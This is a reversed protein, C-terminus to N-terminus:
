TSDSPSATSFDPALSTPIQPSHNSFDTTFSLDDIIFNTSNPLIIDSLFRSASPQSSSINTFPFIHEYFIVHRSVITKNTPPDFLKYGKIGIPYGRFFCPISRSDFNHWSHSQTSVYALCSFTRRYTYIPKQHFLLEFPSCNQLMAVPLKNIIHVGTLVCNSWFFLSPQAEFIFSRAVNLIHQHKREVVSNQQPMYVCSKHHVIGKQHCLNTMEFELGNDSRLTKITTQFQNEVLRYFAQINEYKLNLKRSIFRHVAHTIM